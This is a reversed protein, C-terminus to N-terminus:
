CKPKEKRAPSPGLGRIRSVASATDIVTEHQGGRHRALVSEIMEFLTQARIPKVLYEDMGAELCRQRDENFAHATLAIIPIHGGAERERQRIARTAEL